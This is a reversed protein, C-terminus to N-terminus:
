FILCYIFSAVVGLLAYMKLSMAGSDDDGGGNGSGDGGGDDSSGDGDDGGSDDEFIVCYVVNDGDTYRYEVHSLEGCGLNFVYDNTDGVVAFIHSTQIIQCGTDLAAQSQEDTYTRDVTPEQFLELYLDALKSYNAYAIPCDPQVNDIAFQLTDADDESQRTVYLEVEDWQVINDNNNAGGGKQDIVKFMLSAAWEEVPETIQDHTAMWMGSGVPDEGFSVGPIELYVSDANCKILNNPAYQEIQSGKSKADNIAFMVCYRKSDEKRKCSYFYSLEEPKVMGSDFLTPLERAASRILIKGELQSIMVESFRPWSTTNTAGLHMPTFIRDGLNDRLVKDLNMYDQATWDQENKPEVGLMAPERRYKDNMPSDLWNKIETLAAVLEVVSSEEDYDEM